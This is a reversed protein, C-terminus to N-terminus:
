LGENFLTRGEHRCRSDCDVIELVLLDIEEYHRLTRVTNIDTVQIRLFLLRDM